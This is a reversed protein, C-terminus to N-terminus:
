PKEEGKSTKKEALDQPADIGQNGPLRHSTNSPANGGSSKSKPKSLEDGKKKKEGNSVPEVGVYTSELPLQEDQTPTIAQQSDTSEPSLHTHNEDDADPEGNLSTLGGEIDRLLRVFEEPVLGSEGTRPDEAVLWGQGHRYSVFIVQGETLPLENEHERTFDFLAVAKGHMEEDPCGVAFQFDRSYRNTGAYDDESDFDAENGYGQYDGYPGVHSYRSEDAPYTVYEGGPGDEMSDDDNVYYTESGDANMSILTGRDIDGGDGASPHERSGTGRAKRGNVDTGTSKNKRHRPASFVPSHLDEDESYPPGDGFSMAPLQQHGYSHDTTWPGMSWQGRSSDWPAPPDSLRRQESAPTSVGSARPPLPGYHLPHIDPYAFDRVLAYPLSSHFVPFVHSGPRSRNQSALSVNSLTSLRDKAYSSSRQRGPRKVPSDTIIPPLVALNSSPAAQSPPPSTTSAM